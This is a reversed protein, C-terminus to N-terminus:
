SLISVRLFSNAHGSRQFWKEKLKCVLVDPGPLCGQRESAQPHKFDQSWKRIRSKWSKIELLAGHIDLCNEHIGLELNIDTFYTIMLQKAGHELCEKKLFSLDWLGLNPCKYVAVERLAGLLTESLIYSVWNFKLKVSVVLDPWWGGSGWLSAGM